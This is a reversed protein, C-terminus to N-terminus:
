LGGMQATKIDEGIAKKDERSLAKLWDRVPENGAESKYFIVELVFPTEMM